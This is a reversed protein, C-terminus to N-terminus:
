SLMTATASWVEADDDRFAQVAPMTRPGLAGNFGPLTRRLQEL